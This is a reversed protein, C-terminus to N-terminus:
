IVNYLYMVFTSQPFLNIKFPHICPSEKIVFRENNQFTNLNKFIIKKRPKLEDYLVISTKLFIINKLNKIKKLSLM